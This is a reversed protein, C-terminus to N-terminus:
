NKPAHLLLSRREKKKKEDGGGGGGTRPSLRQSTNEKKRKLIKGRVTPHLLTGKEGKEGKGVELLIYFRIDLIEEREEKKKKGLADKKKEQLVHLDSPLRSKALSERGGGRKKESL